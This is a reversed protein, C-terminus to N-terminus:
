LLFMNWSKDMITPFNYTILFPNILYQLNQGLHTEMPWLRIYHLVGLVLPFSFSSSIQLKSVRGSANLNEM